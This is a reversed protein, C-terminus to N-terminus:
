IQQRSCGALTMLVYLDASDVDREYTTARHVNQRM